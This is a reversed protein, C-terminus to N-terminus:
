RVDNLNNILEAMYCYILLKLNGYGSFYLERYARMRTDVIYDGGKELYLKGVRPNNVDTNYFVLEERTKGAPDFVTLKGLHDRNLGGHVRTTNSAIYRSVVARDDWMTLSDITDNMHTGDKTWSSKCSYEEKLGLMHEFSFPQNNMRTDISLISNTTTYLKFEKEEGPYLLQTDGERKADVIQSYFKNVNAQLSIEASGDDAIAAGCSGELVAALKNRLDTALNGEYETKNIEISRFPLNGKINELFVPGKLQSTITIKIRKDRLQGCKIKDIGAISDVTPSLQEAGFRNPINVNPACGYLFLYSLLIAALPIHPRWGVWGAAASAAAGTRLAAM